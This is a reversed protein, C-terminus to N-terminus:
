PRGCNRRSRRCAASCGYAFVGAGIVLMAAIALWRRPSHEKRIVSPPVAAAADGVIRARLSAPPSVQPVAHPLVGAILRMERVDATCEACGALHAEFAAREEPELVGLAYGATNAKLEDHGPTM